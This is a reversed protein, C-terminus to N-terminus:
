SLFHLMLVLSVGTVSISMEDWIGNNRDRIPCMWDWGEVYQTAVDKGIEHDGGQGGEPPISGPHDPSYVLVALLNQGDPHVIDTVDLVLILSGRLRSAM